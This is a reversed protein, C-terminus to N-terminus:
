DADNQAILAATVTTVAASDAGDTNTVYYRVGGSAWYARWSGSPLTELVAEHAEDLVRSDSAEEDLSSFNGDLRAAECSYRHGDATFDVCAIEERYISYAADEAGEPASLVIDMAAFAEPGAVDEYPSAALTPGGGGEGGDNHLVRPMVLGVAAVLVLCAAWAGWQQRLRRGGSKKRRTDSEAQRAVPSSEQAAAGSSQQAAKKLINAYMREQAGPEWEIEELAQKVQEEKM